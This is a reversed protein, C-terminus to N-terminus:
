LGLERWLTQCVSEFQTDIDYNSFRLVSLGLSKLYADREADYAEASPDYHQSGDLEVVLKREPCYFDVIYNGFQKQRKFAIPLQKLCDYWLHREHRTMERRLKQALSKNAERYYIIAM